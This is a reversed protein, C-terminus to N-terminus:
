ISLAWRLQSDDHKSHLPHSEMQVLLSSREPHFQPRLELTPYLAASTDGQLRELVPAFAM